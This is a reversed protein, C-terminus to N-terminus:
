CRFSCECGPACRRASYKIAEEAHVRFHGEALADHAAVFATRRVPPWLPLSLGNDARVAIIRTPHSGTRTAAFLVRRGRLLAKRVALPSFHGAVDRALSALLLADPGLCESLRGTCTGLLFIEMPRAIHGTRHNKLWSGAGHRAGGMRRAVAEVAVGSFTCVFCCLFLVAWWWTLPPVSREKRGPRARSPNRM